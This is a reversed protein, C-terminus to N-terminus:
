ATAEKYEIEISRGDKAPIIVRRKLAPLEKDPHNWNKVDEVNFDYYSQKWRKTEEPNTHYHCVPYHHQGHDQDQIYPLWFEPIAQYMWARMIYVQEGTKFVKGSTKSRVVERYPYILHVRRRAFKVGNAKHMDLLRLQYPRLTWLEGRLRASPPYKLDGELFKPALPRGEIPIPYSQEGINKVWTQFRNQSYATGFLGSMEVNVLHNFLGGTKMEDYVFVHQWEYEELQPMDPTHTMDVRTTHVWKDVGDPGTVVKKLKSFVTM